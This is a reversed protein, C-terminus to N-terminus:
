TNPTLLNISSSIIVSGTSNLLQEFRLRKEAPQNEREDVKERGAQENEGIEVAKRKGMVSIKYM